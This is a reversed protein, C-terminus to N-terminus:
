SLAMIWGEVEAKDVADPALSLYARYDAVAAEAQDLATYAIGRARYAWATWKDPASAQAIAASLDDVAAPWDQTWLHAVGRGVRSARDSPMLQLARTYDAIAGEYQGLHGLADARWYYYNGTGPAFSLASNLQEVERQYDQALRAAMAQEFAARGPWDATPIPNTGVWALLTQDPAFLASVLSLNRVDQGPAYETEVTVSGTGATVWQAESTQQTSTQANNEFFFVLVFARPVSVLRYNLQLQLKLSGPPSGPNSPYTAVGSLVLADPLATQQGYAPPAGALLAGVLLVIAVGTRALSRHISM